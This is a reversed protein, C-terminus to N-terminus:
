FILLVFRLEKKIDEYDSQAELQARLQEVLAEQRNLEQILEDIRKNSQAEHEAFKSSLLKNKELLKHIQENKACILPSDESLAADDSAASNRGLKEM